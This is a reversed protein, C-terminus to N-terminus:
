SISKLNNIKQNIENLKFLVWNLKFIVINSNNENVKVYVLEKEDINDYNWYSVFDCQKIFEINGGYWVKNWISNNKAYIKFWPIQYNDFLYTTAYKDKHTLILEDRSDGNVDELILKNNSLWAINPLDDEIEAEKKRIHEANDMGWSVINLNKNYQEVLYPREKEDHISGVILASNLYGFLQYQLEFKNDDFKYAKVKSDYFTYLQFGDESEVFDMSGRNKKNIKNEIEDEKWTCVEQIGKEKINYLSYSKYIYETDWSFNSLLIYKKDQGFLIFDDIEDYKLKTDNLEISLASKDNYYIKLYNNKGETVITALEENGDKDYDVTRVKRVIGNEDFSTVKQYGICGIDCVMLDIFFLSNVIISILFIIRLIIKGKSYINWPNNVFMKKSKEFVDEDVVLTSAMVDHITLNYDNFFALCYGLLYIRFSFVDGTGRVFAQILTLKESNTSVVKIKLIKMGISQNLFYVTLFPYLFLNIMVLIKFYQNLNLNVILEFIVIIFLIDILKSLIRKKLPSVIIHFEENSNQTTKYM